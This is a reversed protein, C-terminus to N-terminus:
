RNGERHRPRMKCAGKHVEQEHTQAVWQRHREDWRVKSAVLHESKEKTSFIEFIRDPGGAQLEDLYVESKVESHM